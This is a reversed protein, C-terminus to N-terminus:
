GPLVQIQSQAGPATLCCLQATSAELRTSAQGDARASQHQCLGTGGQGQGQETVSLGSPGARRGHPDVQFAILLHLRLVRCAPIRIWGWLLCLKPGWSVPIRLRPTELLADLGMEAVSLGGLLGVKPESGVGWGTPPRQVQQGGASSILFIVPCAVCSSEKTQRSFGPSFGRAGNGWAKRQNKKKKKKKKYLTKM